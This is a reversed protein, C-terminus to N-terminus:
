LRSKMSAINKFWSWEMLWVQFGLFVLIAWPVLRADTWGEHTELSLRSWQDEKLDCPAGVDNISYLLYTPFYICVYIFIYMQLGCLIDVYGSYFLFM